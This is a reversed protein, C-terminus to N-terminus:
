DNLEKALACDSAHAQEKINGCSWCRTTRPEMLCGEMALLHAVSMHARHKAYGDASRAVVGLAVKAYRVMHRYQRIVDTKSLKPDIKVGYGITKSM